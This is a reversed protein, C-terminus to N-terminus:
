IVNWTPPAHIVPPAERAIMMMTQSTAPLVTQSRGHLDQTGRSM